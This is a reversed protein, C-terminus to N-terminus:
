YAGGGEFGVLIYDQVMHQSADKYTYPIRIAKEIYHPGGKFQWTGLEVQVEVPETPLLTNAAAYPNEDLILQGLQQANM